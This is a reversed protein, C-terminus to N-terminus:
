SPEYPLKAEKCSSLRNFIKHPSTEFQLAKKARPQWSNHQSASIDYRGSPERRPGTPISKQYSESTYTHGLNRGIWTNSLRPVFFQEAVILASEIDRTYRYAIKTYVPIFDVFGHVKQM